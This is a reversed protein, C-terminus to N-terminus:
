CFYKQINTISCDPGKLDRHIISNSHLYNMAVLIERAIVGIYREEIPGAKM